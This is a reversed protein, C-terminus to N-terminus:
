PDDSAVLAYDIVGRHDREYEPKIKQALEDALKKAHPIYRDWTVKQKDWDAQKYVRIGYGWEHVPCLLTKKAGPIAQSLPPSAFSGEFIVGIRPPKEDSFGVAVSLAATIVLLASHTRPKRRIM